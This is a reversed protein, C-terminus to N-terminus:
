NFSNRSPCRRRVSLAILLIWLLLLLLLQLLVSSYNPVAHLLSDLRATVLGLPLEALFVVLIPVAFTGRYDWVYSYSRKFIAWVPLRRLPYSTQL